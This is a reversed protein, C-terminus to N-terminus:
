LMQYTLVLRASLGVDKFDYGDVTVDLSLVLCDMLNWGTTVGGGLVFCERQYGHKSAICSYGLEVVPGLFFLPDIPLVSRCRALWTIQKLSCMEPCGCIKSYDLSTELRQYAPLYFGICVSAGFSGKDDFRGPSCSAYQAPCVGEPLKFELPESKPFFRVGLNMGASFYMKGLGDRSSM